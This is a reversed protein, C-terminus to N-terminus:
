FSFTAGAMVNLGQVQYGYFREYKNNLVNNVKAFFSLQDLYTYSAGINIDVKPSMRQAPHLDGLKAFRESEYFANLSFALEKTVNFDASFDTEWAPKNWAYIDDNHLNWGNYASKFQINLRNQYNYSARIGTKFHTAATYIMDFRNSFITETILPFGWSLVETQKNVFFYQNDIYRFNAFFNVMMNDFPKINVGGFFEFPTYTDKPQEAFSLYPNEALITNLTNRQYDGTLGGYFGLWEPAIKWDFRIDPSPNVAKGRMFSFAAKFGLKLSWNESRQLYYYPNLMLVAYNNWPTAIVTNTPYVMNYFGFDGGIRDDDYAASLGGNISITNESIDGANFLDYGAKVRYHWEYPEEASLVGIYVGAKLFTNTNSISDFNINPRRALTAVNYQNGYYRLYDHGGNIGAFFNLADFKKDFQLNATSKSYLEYGFTGRHFLSFDLQADSNSVLPYVFDALTNPYSGIGIRAFGKYPNTKSMMTLRAAPLTYISGEVSLPLDFQTYVAEQKVDKPEVAQPVSMIKGANKVTPVYEREVTVNRTVVTDKAQTQANASITTPLLLFLIYHLKKM